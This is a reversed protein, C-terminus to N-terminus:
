ILSQLGVIQSIFFDSMITSLINQSLQIQLYKM